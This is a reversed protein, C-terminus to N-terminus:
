RRSKARAPTLVVVSSLLVGLAVVLLWASDAPSAPGGTGISSTDPESPAETVGAQTQEFSPTVEAEESPPNSPADSPPNSPPDTEGEQTQEFSPSEEPEGGPGTCFVAHSLGAPGPDDPNGTDPAFMGGDSTVGGGPEGTYDYENYSNGGKIYAITVVGGTAAFGFEKTGSDYTWTVTVGSDTTDSGGTNGTEFGDAPDCEAKDNGGGGLLTINGARETPTVGQDSPGTAALAVGVLAIGLAGAALLAAFHKTIRM